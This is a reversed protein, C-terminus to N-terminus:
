TGELPTIVVLRDAQKQIMIGLGYYKGKYEETLRSFNRPDLFSSHPDLTNLIGKVAAIELDDIKVEQFYNEQIISTMQDLKKISSSWVDDEWAPHGVLIALLFFILLSFKKKM